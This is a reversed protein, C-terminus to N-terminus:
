FTPYIFVKTSNNIIKNPPFSKFYRGDRMISYRNKIYIYGNDIKNIIGYYLSNSIQIIYEKGLIIDDYDIYDLSINDPFIDITELVDKEENQLPLFVGKEIHVNSEFTHIDESNKSDIITMERCFPCSCKYKSSNKYGCWQTWCRFCIKHECELFMDTANEQCIACIYDLYDCM